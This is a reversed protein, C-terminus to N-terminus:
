VARLGARSPPDSSPKAEPSPLSAKKSPISDTGSSGPLLCAQSGSKKKLPERPTIEPTETLFAARIYRVAENLVYYHVFAWTIGQSRSPTSPLNVGEISCDTAQSVPSGTPVPPKTRRRPDTRSSANELIHTLATDGGPSTRLPAAQLAPRGPFDPQARRRGRLDQHLPPLHCGHLYVVSLLLVTGDLLGLLHQISTLPTGPLQPSSQSPCLVTKHEM